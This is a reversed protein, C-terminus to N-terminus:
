QLYIAGSIAGGLDGLKGGERKGGTIDISGRPEGHCALCSTEYYEPILVRYAKKGNLPAEQEVFEDKKWGASQFKSKITQNEWADPLNPQHRVLEAPATLKLYGLEAVKRTFGEAVRYAFVAPLFGKFGRNPDNILPQAQDMVEQMADLEAQLMQGEASTPDLNPVPHGTQEAYKAKAQKVLKKGTLDKGSKPENIFDQQDSIVQRASRLLATLHLLVTHDIKDQSAAEEPMIQALLDPKVSLEGSFPRNHSAILLISV